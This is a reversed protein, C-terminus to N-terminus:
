LGLERFRQFGSHELTWRCLPYGIFFLVLIRLANTMHTWARELGSYHPSSLIAYVLSVHSALAASFYRFLHSGEKDRWIDTPTNGRWGRREDLGDIASRSRCGSEEELIRCGRLPRCFSGTPLGRCIWSFHHLYSPLIFLFRLYSASM